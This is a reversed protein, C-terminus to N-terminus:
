RVTGNLEHIREYTTVKTAFNKEITIKEKNEITLYQFFLKVTKQLEDLYQFTYSEQLISAISYLFALMVLPTIIGFVPMIASKLGGLHSIIDSYVVYKYTVIDRIFNIKLTM